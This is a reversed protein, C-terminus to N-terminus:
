LLFLVFWCIPTFDTEKEFLLMILNVSGSYFLGSIFNQSNEQMFHFLQFGGRVTMNMWEDSLSGQEATM